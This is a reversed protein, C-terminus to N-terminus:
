LDFTSYNKDFSETLDVRESHIWIFFLCAFGSNLGIYANDCRDFNITTCDLFAVMQLLCCNFSWDLCFSESSAATSDDM